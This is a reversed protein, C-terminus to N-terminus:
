CGHFLVVWIDPCFFVNELWASVEEMPFWRRQESSLQKGLSSFELSPVPVEQLGATSELPCSDLAPLLIVRESAGTEADSGSHVQLPSAAPASNM